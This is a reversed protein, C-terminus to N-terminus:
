PIPTNMNEQVEAQTLARSYVRVEDIRGGFFDYNASGMTWAGASLEL